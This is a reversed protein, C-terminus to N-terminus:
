DTKMCLHEEVRMEGASQKQQAAEREKSPQAFCDWILNPVNVPRHQRSEIEAEHSGRGRFATKKSRCM